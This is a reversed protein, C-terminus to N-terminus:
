GDDVVLAAANAADLAAREEAIRAEADAADQILRAMLAAEDAIAQEEPILPEM